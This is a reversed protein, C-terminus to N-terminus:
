GELRDLEETAQQWASVLAGAEFLVVTGYPAGTLLEVSERYVNLLEIVRLMRDPNEPQSALLDCAEDNIDCALPLLLKATEQPHRAHLAGQAVGETLADSLYETVKAILIRRRYDRIAM